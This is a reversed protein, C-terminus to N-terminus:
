KSQFFVLVVNLPVLFYNFFVDPLSLFTSSLVFFQFGSGFGEERIVARVALISESERGDVEHTTMGEM